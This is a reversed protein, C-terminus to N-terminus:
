SREADLPLVQDQDVGLTDDVLPAGLPHIGVLFVERTSVFARVSASARFPASTKQPTETFPITVLSMTLDIASSGIMKAM